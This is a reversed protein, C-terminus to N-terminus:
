AGASKAVSAMMSKEEEYQQKLQGVEDDRRKCHAEYRLDATRQKNEQFRVEFWGEVPRNVPLDFTCIEVFGIEDHPNIMLGFDSDMVRFRVYHNPCTLPVSCTQHFEPDCNMVVTETKFVETPSDDLIVKVYPDSTPKALLSLDSPLLDRGKVITVRLNAWNDLTELARTPRFICRSRYAHFDEKKMADLLPNTEERSFKM